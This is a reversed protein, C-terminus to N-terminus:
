NSPIPQSKSQVPQSSSDIQRSSGQEQQQQQLEFLENSQKLLDIGTMTNEREIYEKAEKNLVLISIRRNAEKSFKPNNLGVTDALGIVRLVKKSDFGGKILERRSANARDASLEWNSYGRDGAVYKQEDTHGSITLKNPLSNLIPALALLIEQMDPRIKASGVDFMPQNNNALIQIRLGMDTLEIILNRALKRLRPDLKFAEIVKRGVEILQQNESVPVDIRTLRQDGDSKTIDDGGGPIPSDSNSIKSGSMGSLPTRFYDAIAQLQVPTSRGILWLVIFLAMMATVFDAYAIKWAGHQGGHGSGSKKKRFIVRTQQEEKKM